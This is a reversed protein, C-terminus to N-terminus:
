RVLADLKKCIRNTQVIEQGFESASRGARADIGSVPAGPLSYNVADLMQVKMDNLITKRDETTVRDETIVNLVAEFIRPRYECFAYLGKPGIIKLTVRIPVSRGGRKLPQMYSFISLRHVRDEELLPDIKKVPESNAAIADVAPGGLLLIGLLFAAVGRNFVCFRKFYTLDLAGARMKM